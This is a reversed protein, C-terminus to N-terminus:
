IPESRLRGRTGSVSSSYRRTRPSSRGSIGTPGSPNFLLIKLLPVFRIAWNTSSDSSVKRSPVTFTMQLLHYHVESDSRAVRPNPFFLRRSFQSQRPGSGSAQRKRTNEISAGGVGAVDTTRGSTRDVAAAWQQRSIRSRYSRSQALRLSLIIFRARPSWSLCVIM